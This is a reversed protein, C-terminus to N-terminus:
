RACTGLATWAMTYAGGYLETNPEYGAQGCFVTMPHANCKFSKGGASVMDGAAYETGLVWASLCAPQTISPAPTLAIDPNCSGKLTWAQVWATGEEPTYGPLPCWGSAPGTKCEYVLTGVAIISGGVYATGAVYASPCYVGSWVPPTPALTPALTVASATGQYRYWYIIFSLQFSLSCSSPKHFMVFLGCNFQQVLECLM